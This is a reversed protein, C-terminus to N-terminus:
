RLGPAPRRLNARQFVRRRQGPGSGFLVPMSPPQEAGAAAVGSPRIGSYRQTEDPIAARGSIMSQYASRPSGAHSARGSLNDDTRSIPTPTPTLCVRTITASRAGPEM